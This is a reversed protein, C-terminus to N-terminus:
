NLNPDRAPKKKFRKDKAEEAVVQAFMESMKAKIAPKNLRKGIAEMAAFVHELSITVTVTGQAMKTKAWAADFRAIKKKAIKKKRTAVSV